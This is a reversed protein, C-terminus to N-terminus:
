SDRPRVGELRKSVLWRYIREDAYARTAAGVHDEGEDLHLRDASPAPGDAPLSRLARVFSAEAHRAIHGISLWAPRGVDGRPVRTPDVAWLAAWFGPQALALDFVGNGGFSFGTLYTRAADGGHEGRVQEVIDRVADAQLHWLDGGRPLQPAIVIFDRTALPASGPRLPGHRTAGDRLPVPAAEDYGHLFVLVPWPGGDRARPLSLVYPLPGATVDLLSHDSDTV